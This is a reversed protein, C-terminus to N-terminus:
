KIKFVNEELWAELSINRYYLTEKYLLNRRADLSLVLTIKESGPDHYRAHSHFEIIMRPIFKKRLNTQPWLNLISLSIMLDDIQKQDYIRIHKSYDPDNKVIDETIEGEISFNWPLYYVDVSDIVQGFLCSPFAFLLLVYVYKMTDIM